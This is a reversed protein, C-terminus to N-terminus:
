LVGVAHLVQKTLEVHRGALEGFSKVVINLAFVYTNSQTQVFGVYWGITSDPAIGGGGTKGYLRYRETSERLLISKVREQTSASFGHLQNNVLNKIFEVQENASIKMSGTLWFRDIGSSIDRNGYGLSDLYRQMRTTGVMAAIEQYYWVVSYRIASTMTQDYPWHKFPEENRLEAPIPHKASDYRILFSTDNAVGTELAILSNPIKFTSCPTFRTRCTEPRYQLYESTAFDYLVFCGSHGAFLDSLDIEKIVSGNPLDQCHTITASIVFLLITRRTRMSCQNVGLTSMEKRLHSCSCMRDNRVASEAADETDKDFFARVQVM